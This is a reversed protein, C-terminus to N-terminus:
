RAELRILMEEGLLRLGVAPIAGHPTGLEVRHVGADFLSEIHAAIDTPTGAFALCALLDDSVLSAAGEVDGAAAARRIADLQGPEFPLDPDLEAIVPLYLVIEQRAIERAAAGDEDCVSVAGVVLRPAVVDHEAAIEALLASFRQAVVPSATGGVKVEDLEEVCVGVSRPGWTGLLFPIREDPTRWRLPREPLPFIEGELPAGSGELLHRVSRIAEGLARVPRQPTLGIADLWAGKALGLYTRGPALSAVLALNGAIEVPHSVFPNVAAAGIRVRETARAIEALPLWAPQHFLDNYVSVGDFGLDEALRGLAGYDALAKDTQFAVSVEHRVTDM